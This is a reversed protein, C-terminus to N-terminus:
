DPDQPDRATRLSLALQYLQRRPKGTRAVLRAAADRPGLGADLLSRLEAELDINDHAGPEAGAVVIVCEGRPPRVSLTERLGDLTDRLYEEHIKTLERCVAAPRESGLVEALDAVTAAVRDPAEYLILTAPDTRRQGLIEMREGRQRPLFGLFVMPQTAIGSGVLAVMAAVPGPIVEVAMGGDIAARVLREGPDSIGPMGADSIVAVRAGAAMAECLKAVRAAENGEFMSVVKPGAIAFHTLLKRARRTDEAAIVDAERLMRVARPSMDELNGIPTGVVVLSGASKDKM